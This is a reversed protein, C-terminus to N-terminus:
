RPRRCRLLAQCSRTEQPEMRPFPLVRLPLGLQPFHLATFSLLGAEPDRPSKRKGSKLDQTKEKATASHVWLMPIGLFVYGLCHPFNAPLSNICSPWLPGLCSWHISAWACGPHALCYHSLQLCSSVQSVDSLTFLQVFCISFSAECFLDEFVLNSFLLDSCYTCTVKKKWIALYTFYSLTRDVSM